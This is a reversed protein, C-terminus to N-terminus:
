MKIVKNKNKTLDFEYFKQRKRDAYLFSRKKVLKSINRYISKKILKIIFYEM